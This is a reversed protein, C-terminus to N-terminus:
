PQGPLNFVNKASAGIHNKPFFIGSRFSLNSARSKAALNGEHQLRHMFGASRFRRSGIALRTEGGVM